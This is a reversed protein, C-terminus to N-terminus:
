VFGSSRASACQLGGRSGKINDQATIGVRTRLKGGVKHSTGIALTAATTPASTDGPLEVARRDPSTLEQGSSSSDSPSPGLPWRREPEVARRGDKGGLGAGHASTTLSTAGVYNWRAAASDITAM